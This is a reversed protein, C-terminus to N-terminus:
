AGGRGRSLFRSPTVEPFQVAFRCRAFRVAASEEVMAQRRALYGRAISQILIVQKRQEEYNRKCIIMKFASQLLVVKTMESDVKRQASLMRAVSQIKVAACKQRLFEQRQLKASYFRSVIAAAIKVRAFRRKEALMRAVSQIMTAAAIEKAYRVALVRRWQTQLQIAAVRKEAFSSRQARMRVLSQIQVIKKKTNDFADKALLGRVRAQVVVAVSRLRLFAQRQQYGRYWAQIRVAAKESAYKRRGLVGRWLRQGLSAASCLSVFERRAIVRRALSQMFIISSKEREYKRRALHMRIVAQAKCVNSVFQEQLTDRLQKRSLYCRAADSIIRLKDMFARFRTRLLRSRLSAQFLLAAERRKSAERRGLLGRARLQITACASTIRKFESQELYRRVVSQARIIKSRETQFDQRARLMRVWSQIKVAAKRLETFADRQAAALFYREVVAAAERLRLFERRQACMRWWAQIKTAATAKRASLRQLVGRAFHQLAITAILKAARERRALIERVWAQIAIVAQRKALFRRRLACCYIYHALVLEAKREAVIHSVRRRAMACKWSKQIIKAANERRDLVHTKFWLRWARQIKMAAEREKQMGLLRACLYSVSAIVVKEDPCTNSMDFAKFLCPIFGMTQIADQVLGFNFKEGELAAHLEKSIRAPPSFVGVWNGDIPKDLQEALIEAKGKGLDRTTSRVQNWDLSEAFYYNILACLVRGDSFASTFNPVSLGYGTCVAQCWRLLVGLLPSQFYQISDDSLDMSSDQPAAFGQLTNRRQVESIEAALAKFSLVSPIESMLVIKWLLLLTKSRSGDALDKATVEAIPIHLDQSLSRLSVELNHIKQLRSVAPVRLQSVASVSTIGQKAKLIDAVRAIRVGDRLDVAINSVGYDFEDMYSQEFKLRYGILGLHRLVDGEGAMYDKCFQIVVDKNNKIISDVQFLRTGLLQASKFQEVLWVLSLFKFLTFKDLEEKFGPRYHGKVAISEYRKAISRDFLLNAAFFKGMKQPDIKEPAFLVSVALHLYEQDYCMILNVINQRVGVDAYLLRDSRIRLRGSSVEEQLKELLTKTAPAEFIQFAKQTAAYKAKSRSIEELPSAASCVKSATATSHHAPANRSCIRCVIQM